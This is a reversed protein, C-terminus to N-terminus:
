LDKKIKEHTKWIRKKMVQQIDDDGRQIKLKDFSSGSASSHPEVIRLFPSTPM